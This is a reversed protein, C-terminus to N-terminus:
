FSGGVSVAFGQKSIKVGPRLRAKGLYSDRPVEVTKKAFVTYDLILASIMGATAGLFMGGIMAVDTGEDDSAEDETGAVIAMGLVAGGIPLLTRAGLSKLAGDSNGKAYHVAPAAVFYGLGLLSSIGDGEGDSDLKSVLAMGGIWAVDALLVQTGYREVRVQAPSEPAVLGPPGGAAAPSTSLTLLLSALLLTLVSRM